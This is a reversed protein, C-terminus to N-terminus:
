MMFSIVLLSALLAASNPGCPSSVSLSRRTLALVPVPSFKTSLRVTPQVGSSSVATQTPLGYGEHLPAGAPAGQPAKSPTEDPIEPAAGVQCSKMVLASAPTWVAQDVLGALTTALPGDSLASKKRGLVCDCYM